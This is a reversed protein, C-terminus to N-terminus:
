INTITKYFLFNTVVYYIISHYIILSLRSTLFCLNIQVYYFLHNISDDQRRVGVITLIYLLCMSMTTDNEYPTYLTDLFTGIYTSTHIYLSSELPVKAYTFVFYHIKLHIKKCDFKTSM